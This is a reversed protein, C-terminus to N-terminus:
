RNLLYSLRNEYQVVDLMVDRISLASASNKFRELHEAHCQKAEKSAGFRMTASNQLIEETIRRYLDEEELVDMGIDSLSNKLYSGLEARANPPDIVCGSKQDQKDFKKRFWTLHDASNKDTHLVAKCTPDDKCTAKALQVFFAKVGEMRHKKALVPDNQKLHDLLFQLDDVPAYTTTMVKSTYVRPKEDRTTPRGDGGYQIVTCHKGINYGWGSFTLTNTGYADLDRKIADEFEHSTVILSGKADASRAFTRYLDPNDNFGVPKDHAPYNKGKTAHYHRLTYALAGQLGYKQAEYSHEFDFDVQPYLNVDSSLFAAQM